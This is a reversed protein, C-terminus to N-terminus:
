CFLFNYIYSINKGIDFNYWKRRIGFPNYSKEVIVNKM